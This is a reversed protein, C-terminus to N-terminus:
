VAEPTHGPTELVSLRVDGFEIADGESLPTFEYDTVAKAGLYIKAGTRERLELHGAIFDAHFHTLLVHRIAVGLREAEDLYQEIDRQPDVVAATRSRADAIWYSAHSLCGLYFQKLIM